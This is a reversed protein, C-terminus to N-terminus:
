HSIVPHDPFSSISVSMPYLFTTSQDEGEENKAVCQYGGMDDWSLNRILLDGSETVTMRANSVITRGEPNLWTVVPKPFGQTRCFLRVESGILELRTKTWMNIRAGSGTIFVSFSFM